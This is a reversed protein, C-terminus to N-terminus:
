IGGFVRNYVENYLAEIEDDPVPEVGTPLVDGWLDLEETEMILDAQKLYIDEKTQDVFVVYDGVSPTYSDLVPTVNSLEIQTSTTATGNAVVEISDPNTNDTKEYHAPITTFLAKDLKNSVRKDEEHLMKFLYESNVLKSSGRYNDAM